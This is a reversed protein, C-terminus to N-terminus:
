RVMRGISVFSAFKSRRLAGKGTLVKVLKHMTVYSLGSSQVDVDTSDYIVVVDSGKYKSTNGARELLVRNPDQAHMQASGFLAAAIVLLWLLKM